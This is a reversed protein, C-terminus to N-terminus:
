ATDRGAVFSRFHRNSLDELRMRVGARDIEVRTHPTDLRAALAGCGTRAAGVGVEALAVQGLHDAADAQTEVAGVDAIGGATDDCALGSRVGADYARRDLGAHHRAPGRLLFALAVGLVVLV